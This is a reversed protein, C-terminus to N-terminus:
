LFVLLHIRHFHYNYTISICIKDFSSLTIEFSPFSEKNYKMELTLVDISHWPMPLNRESTITINHSFVFNLVHGILKNM